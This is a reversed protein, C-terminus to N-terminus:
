SYLVISKAGLLWKPPLFLDNEKLYKMVWIVRNRCMHIVFSFEFDAYWIVGLM